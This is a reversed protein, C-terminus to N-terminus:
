DGSPYEKVKIGKAAVEAELSNLLAQYQAEVMPRPQRRLEEAREAALTLIEETSLPKTPKETEQKVRRAYSLIEAVKEEPLGVIIESLQRVYAKTAQACM